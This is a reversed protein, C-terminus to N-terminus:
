IYGMDLLDKIAKDIDENHRRPHPYSTTMVCKEGINLQIMHQFGGDLPLGLPIDSFVKRNKDM